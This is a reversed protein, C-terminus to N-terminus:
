IRKEKKLSKKLQRMENEISEVWKDLSLDVAKEFNSKNDDM